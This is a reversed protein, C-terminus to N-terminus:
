WFSSFGSNLNPWSLVLAFNWPPNSSLATKRLHSNNLLNVQFCHRVQMNWHQVPLIAYTSLGSFPPSLLVTAASTPIRAAPVCGRRLRWLKIPAWKKPVPSTRVGQKRGAWAKPMHKPTREWLFRWLPYIKTLTMPLSALNTASILLDNDHLVMSAYLIWNAYGDIFVLFTVVFPLM